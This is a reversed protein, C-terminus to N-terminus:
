TRPSSLGSHNSDSTGGGVRGGIRNKNMPGHSQEGAEKGGLRVTVCNGEALVKRIMTGHVPSRFGLLERGHQAYVLRDQVIGALATRGSM